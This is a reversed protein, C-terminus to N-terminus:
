FVNKCALLKKKQVPTTNEDKVIAHKHSHFSLAIFILFFTWDPVPLSPVRFSVSSYFIEYTPIVQNDTM